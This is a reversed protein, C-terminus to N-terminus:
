SREGAQIIEDLLDDLTLETENREGGGVFQTVTPVAAPEQPIPATRTEAPPEQTEPPGGAATYIPISEEAADAQPPEPEERMLPIGIRVAVDEDSLETYSPLDFDPLDRNELKYINRMLAAPNGGTEPLDAPAEPAIGSLGRAEDPLDSLPLKQKRLAAAFRNTSRVAEAANEELAENFARIQREYEAVAAETKKLLERREAQAKRTTEEAERGANLLIAEARKQSEALYRDAADQAAAMADVVSQERTQYGKILEEMTEVRRMLLNVREQREELLRMLDKKRM